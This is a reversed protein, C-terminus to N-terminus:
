LRDEITDLCSGSCLAKKPLDALSSAIQGYALGERGNGRSRADGSACNPGLDHTM